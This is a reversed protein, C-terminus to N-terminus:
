KIILSKETPPPVVLKKVQHYDKSTQRHSSKTILERQERLFSYENCTMIPIHPAPSDILAIKSFLLAAVDNPHLAGTYSAM